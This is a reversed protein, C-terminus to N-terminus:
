VWLPTSHWLPFRMKKHRAHYPQSLADRIGWSNSKALPSCINERGGWLFYFLIFFSLFFFSPLFKLKLEQQCEAKLDPQTYPRKFAAAFDVMLALQSMALDGTGAWKVVAFKEKLFYVKIFFISSKKFNKQAANHTSCTTKM